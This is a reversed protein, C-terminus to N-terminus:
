FFLIKNNFYINKYPFSIIIFLGSSNKSNQKLIEILNKQFTTWLSLHSLSLIRYPLVLDTVSKLLM